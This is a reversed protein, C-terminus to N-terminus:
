EHEHNGYKHKLFDKFSNYCDAIERYEAYRQQSRTMQRVASIGLYEIEWTPHCRSIVGPKDKDFNVGLYHGCDKAIVGRNGNVIIIRGFEAPVNYYERVYEFAM